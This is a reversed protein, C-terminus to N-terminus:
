FTHSQTMPDVRPSLISFAATPRQAATEAYCTAIVALGGNFRCLIPEGARNDVWVQSRPLRALLQLLPLPALAGAGVRVVPERRLWWKRHAFDFPALPGRKWLTLACDDFSRWRREWDDKRMPIFGRKECDAAYDVYHGGHAPFLNRIREFAEPNEAPPLGDYRHAVIALFGNAAYISAHHSFPKRFVATKANGGPHVFYDFSRAPLPFGFSRKSPEPLTDAIM